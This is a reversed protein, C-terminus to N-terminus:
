HDNQQEAVPEGGNETSEPRHIAAVIRPFAVIYPLYVVFM